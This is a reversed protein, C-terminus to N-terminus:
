ADGDGVMEKLVQERIGKLWCLTFTNMIKNCDTWLRKDYEKIAESKAKNIAKDFDTEFPLPNIENNIEELIAKYKKNKTQLEEVEASLASIEDRLTEKKRILIDIEVNKNELEARQLTLIDFTDKALQTTVFVMWHEGIPEDSNNLIKEWAKIIENDKM